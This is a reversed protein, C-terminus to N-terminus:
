SFRHDTSKRQRDDSPRRGHKELWRTDRLARCLAEEAERRTHYECYACDNSWNSKRCFKELANMLAMPLRDRRDNIDGAGGNWGPLMSWWDWTTSGTSFLSELTTYKVHEVMWHFCEGRPDGRASLWQALLFRAAEDAPQEDLVDHFFFEDPM